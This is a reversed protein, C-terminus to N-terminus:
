YARRVKRGLVWAIAIGALLWGVFQQVLMGGIYDLPFRYWTWLPVAVAVWAFVGLVTSVAVRKAFGWPALGLVWAMLASALVTSALQLSLEDVMDLGNEGEPQYVIFAYPSAATKKGFAESAVPDAYQEPTINPLIYVGERPFNAQMAALVPDEAVPSEYGLNGLPLLMNAVFGWFFLVLGGLCAALLLRM